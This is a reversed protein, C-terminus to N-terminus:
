SGPPLSYISTPIFGSCLGMLIVLPLFSSTFNFLLTLCALGLGGLGIFWGQHRFRDILYGAPTSLILSGLLPIGILVDSQSLSYGRRMFYDPAFTAFSVFGANFFLWSLGVWWVPSGMQRLSRRIRLGPNQRTAQLAPIRYFTLFLLATMLSFLGAFLIPTRWGWLSAMRGFLGFSIVSGLPVGTNFIGMALGLEKEKFWQSLIKPLFISLIFAGIGAIIRGAWLVSIEKGLILFLTGGIMLLFCGAGSSKMSYRDSLFGGFLSIFLGPLAFLGMLLGSQTNTLRFESAIFPLIPPICQFLLAFDLISLYVIAM